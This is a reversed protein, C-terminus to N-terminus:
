IECAYEGICEPLTAPSPATLHTFIEVHFDCVVDVVRGHAGRHVGREEQNKMASGLQEFDRFEVLAHYQPLKSRPPSGSNKLLQFAASEAKACLDVLYRSVISLGASESVGPKLNFWVHYHVM